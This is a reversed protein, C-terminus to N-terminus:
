VCNPVNTVNLIAMFITVSSRLLLHKLKWEGLIEYGEKM